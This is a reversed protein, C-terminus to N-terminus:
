IGDISPLSAIRYLQLGERYFSITNHILHVKKPGISGLKDYIYKNNSHMIIYVLM